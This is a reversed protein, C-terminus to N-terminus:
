KKTNVVGFNFLNKNKARFAPCGYTFLKTSKPLHAIGDVNQLNPCCMLNLETLNSIRALGDVNKLYTCQM